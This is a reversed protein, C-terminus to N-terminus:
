EPTNSSWFYQSTTPSNALLVSFSMSKRYVTCLLALSVVETCRSGVTQNRYHVQTTSAGRREHKVDKQLSPYHGNKIKENWPVGPRTRLLFPFRDYRFKGLKLDLTLMRLQTLSHSNTRMPLHIKRQARHLQLFMVDRSALRQM